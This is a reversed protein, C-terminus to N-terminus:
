PRNPLSIHLGTGSVVECISCICLNLGVTRFFKAQEERLIFGSFFVGVLTVLPVM